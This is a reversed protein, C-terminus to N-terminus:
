PLDYHRFRHRNLRLYEMDPIVYDVGLMYEEPFMLGADVVILGSPVGSPLARWAIHAYSVAKGEVDSVSVLVQASSRPGLVLLLAAAFFPRVLTTLMRLVAIGVTM